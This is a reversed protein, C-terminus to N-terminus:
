LAIAHEVQIEGARWLRSKVFHQRGPPELKMFQDRRAEDEDILFLLARRFARAEMSHGSGHRAVFRRVTGPDAAGALILNLEAWCDEALPPDSGDLTEALQYIMASLCPYRVRDSLMLDLVQAAPSERTVLITRNSM